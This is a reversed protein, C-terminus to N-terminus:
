VHLCEWTRIWPVGDTHKSVWPVGNKGASGGTALTKNGLGCQDLRVTLTLAQCVCAEGTLQTKPRTGPISAQSGLAVWVGAQGRGPIHSPFALGQTPHASLHAGM